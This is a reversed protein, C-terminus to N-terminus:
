DWLVVLLYMVTLVFGTRHYAYGGLRREAANTPALLTRFVAACLIATIIIRIASM